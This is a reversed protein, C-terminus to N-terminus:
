YNYNRLKELIMKLNEWIVDVVINEWIYAIPRALYSHWAYIGMDWLSAINKQILSLNVVGRLDVDHYSLVIITIIIMAFLTVFTKILGKNGRNGKM